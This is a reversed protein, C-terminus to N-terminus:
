VRHTGRHRSRESLVTNEPDTWGTSLTLAERKKTLLIEKHAHFLM